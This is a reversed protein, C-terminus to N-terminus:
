MQWKARLLVILLGQYNCLLLSLLIKCLFFFVFSHGTNSQLSGDCATDVCCSLFIFVPKLLSLRVCCVFSRIITVRTLDPATIELRRHSGSNTPFAAAAHRLNFLFNAPFCSCPWCFLLPYYFDDAPLFFFFHSLGRKHLLSAWFSANHRQLDVGHSM